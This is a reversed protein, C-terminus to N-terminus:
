LEPIFFRFFYINENNQKVNNLGTFVDEYVYNGSDDKTAAWNFNQDTDYYGIYQLSDDIDDDDYFDFNYSEVVISVDLNQDLNPNQIAFLTGFGEKTSRSSLNADSNDKLTTNSYSPVTSNNSFIKMQFSGSSSTSISTDKSCSYDDYFGATFIQDNSDNTDYVICDTCYVEDGSDATCSCSSCQADENTENGDYYLYLCVFFMIIFFALFIGILINKQNASSKKDKQKDDIIQQDVDSKENSDSM